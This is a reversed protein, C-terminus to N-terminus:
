GTIKQDRGLISGRIAVRVRAPSPQAGLNLSGTSCRGDTGSSSRAILFVTCTCVVGCLTFNIECLV